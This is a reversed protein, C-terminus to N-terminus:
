MRPGLAKSGEGNSLVAAPCPFSLREQAAQPSGGSPRWHFRRPARGEALRKRAPAALRGRAHPSAGKTAASARHDARAGTYNPGESWTGLRAM